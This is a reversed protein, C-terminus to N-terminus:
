NAENEYTLLKALKTRFLAKLESADIASNGNADDFVTVQIHMLRNVVGGQAVADSRTAQYRIATNGDAAFNGTTTGSTWNQMVLASQSEIVHVAYNALLQRRVGERSVAMANRMVALAPALTGAMLATAFIMEM